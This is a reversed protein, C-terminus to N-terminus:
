EFFMGRNKREIMEDFRSLYEEVSKVNFIRSIRNDAGSYVKTTSGAGAAAVTQKEEMIEVNYFSEAGKKCYGINEFNGVMNKQRYMYYPKMGILGAYRGATKLMNEIESIGALSYDNFNEKLRSARKVALTHVTISEPELRAIRDMTNEVDSVSEGPLGLILDMNINKFGENRAMNFVSVIDEVTHRRGILDLTKQNMTQPNVSVRGVNHKKMVKLKESTITDPRGAEVTFELAGEADFNMNIAELLRELQTENLSTPTGGGIYISMLRKGEAKLSIFKLEEILKDIYLDVINKYKDIPYSTFSCYLCRTPCFPIGIYLSYDYEHNKELIEREARAVEMTLSAKEASVFYKETLFSYADAEDAGSSILENVTKAPRIGTIMGWKPTYGTIERFCEYLALKIVRKKERESINEGGHAFIKKILSVGDKFIEAWAFSSDFGSLACIGSTEICDTEYYHLNPYFVQAITQVEHGLGHGKLVYKIM